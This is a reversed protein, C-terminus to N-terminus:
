SRSAQSEAAAMAELLQDCVEELRHGRPRRPGQHALFDAVPEDPHRLLPLVDPPVPAEGPTLDGWATLLPVGHELWAAAVGSKGCLYYPYHTLAADMAQMFHSLEPKALEGLVRFEAEPHRDRWGSFLAEIGPARGASYVALRRGRGAAYGRLAAILSDPLREGRQGSFLGVRFASTEGDEGLVRRRAEPAAEALPLNGFLPLLKADFRAADLLDQFYPNSTHILAPALDRLLGIVAPRQLAGLLRPKWGPQDAIGLWIEHVMVQLRLGRLLRALGARERWLLGRPNLAFPNFQLSTWDPAFAAIWERGKAATATDLPGAPLRLLPADRGGCRLRDEEPAGGDTLALFGLAHGRAALAEALLLSYDAIGGRSFEAATLLIRM